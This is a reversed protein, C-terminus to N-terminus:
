VFCVSLRSTLRCPMENSNMNPLPQNVVSDPSYIQTLRRKREDFAKIQKWLKELDIVCHLTHQNGSMNDSTLVMHLVTLWMSCDTLLLINILGVGATQQSLKWKAGSQTGCGKRKLQQCIVADKHGWNVLEHTTHCPHESFLYCVAKNILGTM